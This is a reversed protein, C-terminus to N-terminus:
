VFRGFSFTGLVVDGSTVMGRWGRRMEGCWATGFRVQWAKDLQSEGPWSAGHRGSRVEGSGVLYRWLTGAEDLWSSGRGAWGHIVLGAKYFRETGPCM